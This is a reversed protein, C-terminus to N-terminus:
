ADPDEPRSEAGLRFGGPTWSTLLDYRDGRVLTRRYELPQNGLVTGTREVAFCAVGAALRLLRRQGTDPVVAAIRERGGSPRVGVRRVLEDYLAAHTFDADLLPRGVEEPLWVRDHALPLDDAYRLRELHFLPADPALGLERSAHADTRIGLDLVESRQELGQEEVVRFLSYLGGLPQEISRAAVRTSRGRRTDLLGSERLRRLAERVTHRSVGYRETLELEGPFGDAFEGAGIRRLLDRHLTQWKPERRASTAAEAAAGRSPSPAM